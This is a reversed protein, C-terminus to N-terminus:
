VRGVGGQDPTGGRVSGPGPRRRRGLPTAHAPVAPLVVPVGAWRVTSITSTRVPVACRNVVSAAASPNGRPRYLASHPSSTTGAAITARSARNQRNHRGACRDHHGHRFRGGCRGVGAKAPVQPRQTVVVGVTPPHAGIARHQCEAPEAERGPGRQPDRPWWGPFQDRARQRQPPVWRVRLLDAPLALATIGPSGDPATPVTAAPSRPAGVPRSGRALRTAPAIRHPAGAPQGGAHDAV